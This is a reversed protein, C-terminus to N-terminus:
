LRSLAKNSPSALFKIVIPTIMESKDAHLHHSEDDFVHMELKRVSDKRAATRTIINPHTGSGALLLLTRPMRIIFGRADEHSMRIFSTGSYIAPDHAWGFTGDSQQRMGRKVIAQAAERSISVGNPDKDMQALRAEVGQEISSFLKPSRQKM